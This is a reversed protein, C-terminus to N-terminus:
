EPVCLQRRGVAILTRVALAAVLLLALLAGSASGALWPPNDILRSLLLLACAMAGAAAGLLLGVAHVAAMPLRQLLALMDPTDISLTDTHAM